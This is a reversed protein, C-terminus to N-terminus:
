LVEAAFGDPVSDYLPRREETIRQEEAAHALARKERLWAEVYEPHKERSFVTQPRFFKRWEAWDSGAHMAIYGQCAGLLVDEPELDAM